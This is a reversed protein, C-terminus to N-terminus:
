VSSVLKNSPKASLTQDTSTNLYSAVKSAGRLNQEDADANFSNKTVMKIGESNETPQSVLNSSGQHNLNQPRTGCQQDISLSKDSDIKQDSNRRTQQQETQGGIVASSSANKNPKSSQKLRNPFFEQALIKGLTLRQPSLLDMPEQQGSM